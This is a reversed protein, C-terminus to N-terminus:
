IKNKAKVSKLSLDQNLNKNLDRLNFKSKLIDSEVIIDRINESFPVDQEFILYDAIKMINEDETESIFISWLLGDKYNPDISINSHEYLYKIIELYGNATADIFGNNIANFQVIKSEKLFEESKISEKLKELENNRAYREIFEINITRNIISERHLEKSITEKEITGSSEKNM